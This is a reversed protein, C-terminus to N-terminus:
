KEAKNAKGKDRIVRLERTIGSELAQYQHWLAERAQPATCSAWDDKIRKRAAELAEVFVEEALIEAAKRSRHDSM